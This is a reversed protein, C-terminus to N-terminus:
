GHTSQKLHDHHDAETLSRHPHYLETQLHPQARKRYFPVRRLWLKLAQWHIKAMVQLTLFPYRVGYILLRGRSLPERHGRIWSLLTRQGDEIDDIHLELGFKVVRM